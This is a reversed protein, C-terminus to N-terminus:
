GADKRTGGSKQSSTLLAVLAKIQADVLKSTKVNRAPIRGFSEEELMIVERELEDINMASVHKIIQELYDQIRENVPMGGVDQRANENGSHFARSTGAQWKLGQDLARFTSDAFGKHPNHELQNLTERSINIRRSLERRSLGLQALRKALKLGLLTARPDTTAMFFVL